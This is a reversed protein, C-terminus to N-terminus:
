GKFRSIKKVHPNNKDKNPVTSGGMKNFLPKGFVPNPSPLITDEISNGTETVIAKITKCSCTNAMCHVPIAIIMKAM